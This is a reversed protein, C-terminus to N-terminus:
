DSVFLVVTSHPYSQTGNIKFRSFDGIWPEIIRINDPYGREDADMRPEFEESKRTNPWDGWWMEEQWGREGRRHRDCGLLPGMGM